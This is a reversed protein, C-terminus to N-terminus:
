YVFYQKRKKKKDKKKGCSPKRTILQSRSLPDSMIKELAAEYKQPPVMNKQSDWVIQEIKHKWQTKLGWPVKM